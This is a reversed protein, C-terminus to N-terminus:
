CSGRCMVAPLLDPVVDLLHPFLGSGPVTLFVCGHKVDPADREGTYRLILAADSLCLVLGALATSGGGAVQPM